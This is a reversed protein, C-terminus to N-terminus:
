AREQQELGRLVEDDDILEGRSAEAVDVRVAARFHAKEKISRLALDKM